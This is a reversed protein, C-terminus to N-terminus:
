RDSRLAAALAFTRQDVQSALALFLGRDSDPDAGTLEEAAVVVADWGAAGATGGWALYRDRADRTRVALDDAWEAAQGAEIAIHISPLHAMLQDVDSRGRDVPAAVAGVPTAAPADARSGLGILGVTLTAAIVLTWVLLPQHRLIRM